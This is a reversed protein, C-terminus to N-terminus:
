ELNEAGICKRTQSIRALGGVLAMAPVRVTRPAAPRAAMAAFPLSATGTTLRRWEAEGLLRRRKADLSVIGLLSLALFLGFLVASAADGNAILHASAWLILAWPVPHRTVAVIGPRGADYPAGSFTLSFPNAAGLGAVLLVCAVPMVLAPVWRTWPVPPWLAVLPAQGYAWVVWALLGLSVVSYSAIYIPLGLRAVLGRRLPGLAPVAHALVFAGVALLLMGM